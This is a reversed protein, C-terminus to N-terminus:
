GQAVPEILFAMALNLANFSAHMAIPVGLKATREYSAGIGLSLVFLSALAYEGGEPIAPLHVATFLMSTLVVSMWPGPFIRRLASQLFVRYILEEAIPVLVVLVGVLVWMWADGRHQAILRLTEHAMRDQEVAGMGRMTWLGIQGALAVLPYIVLFLGVGIPVDPWGPRTGGEPAERAVFWVLGSGIVAATLNALLLQVAQDHVPTGEILGLKEPAAAGLGLALWTTAAAFLWMVFPVPKVDRKGADLGGPRVANFRWIIIISIITLVGLIWGEHGTIWAAIDQVRTDGVDGPPM